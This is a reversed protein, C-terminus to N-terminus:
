IYIELAGIVGESDVVTIYANNKFFASVPRNDEDSLITANFLFIIRKKTLVDEGLGLKKIYNRLLQKISINIPTPMTVNLGSSAAMVINIKKESNQYYDARLSRDIRPILEKPPERKYSNRNKMVNGNNENNMYNNMNNINNMMNMNNMNNMNNMMNMNNMNNMMNMKNMNNMMNMNNMNNMMNMNAMLNQQNPFGNDNSQDMMNQQMPFANNNFMNNQIPFGNNNGIM